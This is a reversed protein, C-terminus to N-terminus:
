PVSIRYFQQPVGGVTEVFNFNGSGDFSNTAIVTWNALPLAVNTSTLVHYNGNPTGGSGSITLSNGSLTIPNFQPGSGGVISITGDASLNNTNWSLGGDLAPLIINTFSGVFLNADFLNFSQGSALATTGINTVILTGGMDLQTVGQVLDSVPGADASIEMRATGRITLINNVTLTGISQGPTLTGNSAIWVSGAITGIGGLGGGNVVTSGTYTNVGDLFLTGEGTKWLGGDNPAGSLLNQPVNLNFGASDITSTGVRVFVNSLGAIFNTHDGIAQLTGGDFNFECYNGTGGKEVSRIMALGNTLLNVIGITNGQGMIIRGSTSNAMPMSVVGAIDIINTATTNGDSGARLNGGTATQAWVSGPGIILRATGNAIDCDPRFAASNTVLANSMIVTGNRVESEANWTHVGQLTLTAEGLKNMAGNMSGGSMTAASEVTLNRTAGGLDMLGSLELTGSNLPSGITSNALVSIANTITRPTAGDSSLTGGNLTLTGSGLVSPGGIQLTGNNIRTGGAHGNDGTLVLVNNGTKTLALAGNSNTITGSFSAFSSANGVTLTAPTASSNDIVGTGSLGNIGETFGNLDLTGTLIVDGKGTGHPIAEAMGLQLTGASIITNGTYTNTTGVTLKGDGQKRLSTAGSINGPGSFTYDNLNNSITLAAPALPQVLNVSFATAADDFQVAQGDSYATPSPIPSSFNLWNMTTTDWDASVNGNWHLSPADTINLKIANAEFVLNATVSVPLSTLEFNAPIVGSGTTFQILTFQGISLGAGTINVKNVRNVTLTAANIVPTTPNGLVGLEFTLANTGAGANLTLISVPLTSGASSVAAGFDSGDNVTVAGGGTSATALILGGGQVLTAGTFSNAGLLKLTGANTKTLGGGPSSNDQLFAPSVNLDYGASDITIGGSKLTTIVSGYMFGQSNTANIAEIIGGNLEVKPISTGTTAGQFIRQTVLKGGNIRLTGDSIDGLGNAQGIRIGGLAQLSAGSAVAVVGTSGNNGAITMFDDTKTGNYYNIAPNLVEGGTINLVGTDLDRGITFQNTVVMLGGSVDVQGYGLPPNSTQDSGIRLYDVFVNGSSLTLYGSGGGGGIFLQAENAPNTPRRELTGGNVEIRGVSNSGTGVQPNNGVTGPSGVISLTGNIVQVTGTTNLVGRAAVWLNSVVYTGGDNIFATGGNTIVASDAIGPVSGSLWNAGVNFDGSGTNSWRVVAAPAQILSFCFTALFLFFTPRPLISHM